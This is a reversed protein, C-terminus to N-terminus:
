ITQNLPTNQEQWHTFLRDKQYNMIDNNGYIFKQLDYNFYAEALGKGDDAYLWVKKSDPPYHGQHLPHWLPALKMKNTDNIIRDHWDKIIFHIGMFMFQFKINSVNYMKIWEDEVPAFYQLFKAEYVWWNPSYIIIKNGYYDFYLNDLRYEHMVRVLDQLALRPNYPKIQLENM